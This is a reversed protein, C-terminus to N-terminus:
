QKYAQATRLGVGATWICANAAMSLVEMAWIRPHFLRTLQIMSALTQWMSTLPVKCLSAGQHNPGGRNNTPKIRSLIGYVPSAQSSTPLSNRM